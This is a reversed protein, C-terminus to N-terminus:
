GQMSLRGFLRLEAQGDRRRQFRHFRTEDVRQRPFGAPLELWFPIAEAAQHEAVSRGDIEFRFGAFGEGAEKGLDDASKCCKSRFSEHEIALEQDGLVVAEAEICQLHTK